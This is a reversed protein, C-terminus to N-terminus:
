ILNLSTTSHDLIFGNMRISEIVSKNLLIEIISSDDKLCTIVGDFKIDNLELLDLNSGKYKKLWNKSVSSTRNYIFLDIQTNKSLHGAMPFGMTGLGVFLYKPKSKPM